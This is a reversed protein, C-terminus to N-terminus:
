KWDLLISVRNHLARVNKNIVEQEVDPLIITEENKAEKTEEM